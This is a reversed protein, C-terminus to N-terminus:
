LKTLARARGRAERPAWSHTCALACNGCGKLKGKEKKGRRRLTHAVDTEEFPLNAAACLTNDTDSKEGRRAQAVCADSNALLRRSFPPARSRWAPMLDVTQSEDNRKRAWRKNKGRGPVRQPKPREERM